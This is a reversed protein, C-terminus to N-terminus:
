QTEKRSRPWGAISLAASATGAGLLMWPFAVFGPVRVGRTLGDLDQLANFNGINDEIVGVLSALDSSITPWKDVLTAVDTAATGPQAVGRFSTELEGVAEVLVVFDGQLQRVEGTTMVPALSHLMRHGAPAGGYLGGVFPYTGLAAAALVVLVAARRARGATGALLVCGGCFAVLGGLVIMFPMRDFGGIEDVREYDPKAASVLDLLASARDLIATSQGRFDDLLPFRGEAVHQRRYVADIGSAGRRLTVLDAGYRSLSGAEMYPAFQDIMQQGAAAKSFLGGVIPGIVLLGGLVLLGLAPLRPRRVPTPEVRAISPAPPLEVAVLLQPAILSDEPSSSPLANLKPLGVAPTTALARKIPSASPLEVAVFLAGSAISGPDQDKFTETM